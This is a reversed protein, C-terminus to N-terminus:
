GPRFNLDISNSWLHFTFSVPSSFTRSFSCLAPLNRIPKAAYADNVGVLSRLGRSIQNIWCIAKWTSKIGAKAVSRFYHLSENNRILQVSKIQVFTKWWSCKLVVCNRKIQPPNQVGAAYEHAGSLSALLHTKTPMVSACIASTSDFTSACTDRHRQAGSREETPCAFATSLPTTTFRM